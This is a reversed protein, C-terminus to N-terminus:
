ALGGVDELKSADENGGPRDKFASGWVDELPAGFKVLEVVVGADAVRDLHGDHTLCFDEDLAGRTLLDDVSNPVALTNVGGLAGVREQAIGVLPSGDVIIIRALGRKQVV